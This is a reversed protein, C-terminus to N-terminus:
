ALADVLAKTMDATNASGGLDPTRVRGDATVKEVIADDDNRGLLPLHANEILDSGGNPPQYVAAAGYGVQGGGEGFM